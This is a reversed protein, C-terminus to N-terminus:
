RHNGTRPSSVALVAPSPRMTGCQSLIVAGSASLAAAVLYSTRYSSQDHLFGLLLPGGAVGATVLLQEFAFIRPYHAVGFAASVILPQLMLLNGITLGFVFAALVLASSSEAFGILTLAVGQLAALGITFRMISLRDVVMGGLLRGVVSAAALASVALAGSARDLRETGLNALQAIGGVQAAMALLYGCVTVVFFRSHVATHYDVSDLETNTTTTTTEGGDPAKGRSEPSPWMWPLAVLVLAFYLLGLTPAADDLGQRDILHSSFNTLTLGGVSLGTTAISLAMARRSHFWRTILTTGPVFGSLSCGIAFLTYVCYLEFETEVSGLLFLSVGSIVGGSGIVWRIDRREILPTIMRVTRGGLVFFLSTALSVSTTSFSREDTLADLYIALGYFGLGSFTTLLVFVSAVIQWGHFRHNSV